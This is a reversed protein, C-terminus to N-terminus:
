SLTHTFYVRADYRKTGCWSQIVSSAAVLGIYDNTALKSLLMRMAPSEIYFCGICKARSIMANISEDKMFKKVDHRVDAIIADPQNYKVIQIADRIKGLGRQALIDFKHIGADEAIHMDFQVTRYGKPPLNTASYYHIPRETILIGGAHISTYNPMDM